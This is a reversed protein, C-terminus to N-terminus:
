SRFEKWSIIEQELKEDKELMYRLVEVYRGSQILNQAKVKDNQNLRKTYAHYKKLWAIDMCYSQFDIGTRSRLNELICFGDPDIDGFHLWRLIAPNQEQIRMLFEQRAHNHYGALYLQFADTQLRNYSTLNEITLITDAYVRIKVIDALRDSRVAVPVGAKLDLRTGNQFLLEGKGNFNVYTPNEYVLYEALIADEYDKKTDFDNEEFDFTGYQKLVRLAKSLIGQKELYKSDGFLSISVERFLIDSANIVLFDLTRLVDEAVEPAFWANKDSRLLKVQDAIFADLVANRGRYKEYLGIQDAHIDRKPKRGALDYLKPEVSSAPVMFERFENRINKDKYVIRVPSIKEFALMSAEFRRLEELDVDDREYTPFIDEVPVRIRQNRQADGRYTGTREYTDLIRDALKKQWRDTLKEVTKM